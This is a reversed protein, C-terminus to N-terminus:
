APSELFNRLDASAFFVDVFHGLDRKVATPANKQELAVDALAAAYRRAM